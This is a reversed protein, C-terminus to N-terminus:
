LVMLILGKPHLGFVFEHLNPWPRFLIIHTLPHQTVWCTTDALNIGHNRANQLTPLSSHIIYTM